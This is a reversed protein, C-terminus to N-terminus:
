YTSLDNVFSRWKRRFKLYEKRVVPLSAFEGIQDVLSIARLRAQKGATGEIGTLKLLSKLIELEQWVKGSGRLDECHDQLLRIAEGKRGDKQALLAPMLKVYFEAEPIGRERMESILLSSTDAFENIVSKRASRILKEMRAILEIGKLGRIEADQITEEIWRLDNQTSGEGTRMLAIKYKCLTTQYNIAGSVLLPDYLENAKAYNGMLRYFEAVALDTHMSLKELKYPTERKNARSALFWGQDLNGLELYSLAASVEMLSQWFRIQLQDMLQISLEYIQLVQEHHGCFFESMARIAGAALRASQHIAVFSFNIMDESLTLARQPQGTYCLVACLTALTNINNEVCYPHTSDKCLEYAKELWDQSEQFRDQSYRIDGILSLSKSQEVRMDTRGLYWNAKQIYREAEDFDNVFFAGQGLGNNGIGILKISQLAEGIELCTQFISNFLTIDDREYAFDGFEHVLAYIVDESVLKPNAAILELARRYSKYVVEAASKVRAFRASELWVNVAEPLEGASEYHLAIQEMFEAQNQRRLSLAKAARLHLDRLRAPELESLVIEREIDHKFEYGGTPRIEKHISLFGESTLENLSEIIQGRDLDAMQELLDPTFRHGLIAAARLLIISNDELGAIKNRVMGTVAEPLDSIQINFHPKLELDSLKLSRLCHILFFPNGGTLLQLHNVWEIEPVKGLLITAFQKVEEDSLPGLDLTILKEKRRLRQAFEDLAFNNVEPSSVLVLLGHKEFFANEELYSLASISAADADGADDLLILAPRKRSFNEMLHMFASFVDELVPLWDQDRAPVEPGEMGQLRDHFFSQLLLRENQPLSEWDERTIKHRLGRILTYFPVNKGLPHGHCLLLRPLYTQQFYFHELLRTKGIGSEGRLLLIGRRRLAMSLQELEKERGIFDIEHKDEVSWDPLQISEQDRNVVLSEKLDVFRKPLVEGEDAYIKELYTSFDLLEKTRGTDRLCILIYFNLDDDLPNIEIAQRLYILAEELDGLSIFHNILQDLIRIMSYQILQRNFELWSEFSKLERLEVGQMFQLTRCMLLLQKLQLVLWEPLVSAINMESSTSLPALIKRFNIVDVEAIAPDLSILNEKAVFLSPVGLGSRIQSLAERLKKRASEENLDPWFIECLGDRTVPQNQAAIYFLIARNLRRKLQIPNGDVYVEPPGLLLIRVSASSKIAMGQFAASM